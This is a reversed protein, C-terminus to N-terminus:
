SIIRVVRAIAFMAARTEMRQSGAGAESGVLVSTVVEGFRFNTSRRGGAESSSEVGGCHAM